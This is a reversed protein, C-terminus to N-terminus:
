EVSFLCKPQPAGTNFPVLELSDTDFMAYKGECLAGIVAFYRDNRLFIAADGRWTQIAQPTALLWRHLHGSFMIRNPVAQFIRDLDRQINPPGEFYWLQAVDLPDLWPEVHTFHCEGIDLRPRLTGMYSIVCDSYKARCEDDVDICLGFDHNGWVGIAGSDALLRCTEDIREGLEFLDGIVVIQDVSEKGLHDLAMRLLDTQEHIDTILGLKMFIVRRSRDTDHESVSFKRDDLKKAQFIIALERAGTQGICNVPRAPL